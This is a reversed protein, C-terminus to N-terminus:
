LENSTYSFVPFCFCRSIALLFQGLGVKKRSYDPLSCASSTTRSLVHAAPPGQFFMRQQHNKFTIRVSQRQRISYRALLVVAICRWESWFEVNANGVIM